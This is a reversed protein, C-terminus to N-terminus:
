DDSVSSTSTSDGDSNPREEVTPSIRGDVIRVRIRTENAASAFAVEVASGDTSRRDTTYGAAPAAADLTLSGNAFTVTITGGEGGITQTSPVAAAATTPPSSTTPSTTPSTIPSTTPSTTPTTTPTTTPRPASSTSAPTTPASSPPTAPATATSGLATATTRSTTTSSAAASSDPTGAGTDSAPDSTDPLMTDATRLSGTPERLALAAVGGLGLVISAAAGSVAAARRRRARTVRGALQVRAGALDPVDGAAQRLSHRLGPDDFDAPDNM